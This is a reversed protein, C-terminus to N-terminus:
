RNLTGQLAPGVQPAPRAVVILRHTNSTYPWCTVLTLREDVTPQIWQANKLRVALPQGKEPLIHRESVIYSYSREGVYVTIVDGPRLNVLYRFVQGNINHHGNLVINGKQGPVASSEHWGVVYGDPVRWQMTTQGGQTVAMLGVPHVPADLGIAPIVLRTPATPGPPQPDPSLLQADSAPREDGSVSGREGPLRTEPLIILPAAEAQLAPAPEAPAAEQPFTGRSIVVPEPGFDPPPTALAFTQGASVLALILLWAGLWM